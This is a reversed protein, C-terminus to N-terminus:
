FAPFEVNTFWWLASTVWLIVLAGFLVGGTVPLTWGPLRRSRLALMKSVFAGYFVCGVFSHINRRLDGSDEGLPNGYGISWLCHFAVPVTFLFAVAGVARHVPAVWEPATGTGPLRGYMWQATLVQTVAFTLAITGLWIKMNPMATFGLTFLARNAPDHVRGYAGLAVATAAGAGFIAILATSSRRDLAQSSPGM